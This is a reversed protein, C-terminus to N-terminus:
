LTLLELSGSQSRNIQGANVSQYNPKTASLLKNGFIIYAGNEAESLIRKKVELMTDPFSDLSSIWLPERHLFTPMIEGLYLFREKGSEFRVMQHGTAHGDTVVLDIGMDIRVDGNVPHLNRKLVELKNKIFESSPFERYDDGGRYLIANRESPNLFEDYSSQQVIIRAKPYAVKENGRNNRFTLSAITDYHFHTLVVTTVDKPEVGYQNRLTRLWKRTSNFTGQNTSVLGPPDILVYKGSGYLDLLITNRNLVVQNRGNPRVETGWESKPIGGFLVGADILTNFGGIVRVGLQKSSDVSLGVYLQSTPSIHMLGIEFERIRELTAELESQREEVPISNANQRRYDAYREALGLTSGGGLKRVWPNNHYVDSSRLKLLQEVVVDSIPYDHHGQLISVYISEPPKYKKIRNVKRRVPKPSLDPPAMPDGIIIELKVAVFNLGGFKTKFLFSLKNINQVSYKINKTNAWAESKVGNSYIDIRNNRAWLTQQIFCL